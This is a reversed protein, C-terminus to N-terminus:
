PEPIDEVFVLGAHDIFIDLPMFLDLEVEIEEAGEVAGIINFRYFIYPGQVLTKGDTYFGFSFHDHFFDSQSSTDKSAM